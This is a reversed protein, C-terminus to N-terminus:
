QKLLKRALERISHAYASGKEIMKLEHKTTIRLLKLVADSNLKPNGLLARRVADAKTWAGNELILEILPKPVTGKRAIRAVEPMSIRPNRLLADWVQKGYLREVAIREALEGTRAVKLQQAANLHRLKEHKYGSQLETARNSDDDNALDEAENESEVELEREEDRSFDDDVDLPEPEDAALPPLPEADDLELAASEEILQPADEAAPSEEILQPADEAAPSEEILQAKDNSNEAESSPAGALAPSEEIPAIAAADIPASTDNAPAAHAFDRVRVIDDPGFSRLAIGMGCMPGSPNVMVVQASLRLELDHEPHVLVLVCESLVPVDIAHNLFARGHQLNQDLERELAARDPFSM